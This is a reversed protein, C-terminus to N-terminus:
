QIKLDVDNNIAEKLEKLPEPSSYMLLSKNSSRPLVLAQKTNDHITMTEQTILEMVTSSAQAMLSIIITKAKQKGKKSAM